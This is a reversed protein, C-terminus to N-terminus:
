KQSGPVAPLHLESGRMERGGRGKRLANIGVTGLRSAEPHALPHLLPSFSVPISPVVAQLLIEEGMGTSKCSCSFEDHCSFSTQVFKGGLPMTPSHQETLSPLKSGGRKGFSGQCSGSLWSGHPFFCCLGFTALWSCFPFSKMLGCVEGPLHSHVCITHM